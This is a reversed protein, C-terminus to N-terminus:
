IFKNLLLGNCDIKNNEKINNVNNKLVDSM